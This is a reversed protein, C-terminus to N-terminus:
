NFKPFAPVNKLFIVPGDQYIFKKNPEEENELIGVEDIIRGVNADVLPYTPPYQMNLICCSYTMGLDEIIKVPDEGNGIRMEYEAQHKGLFRKCTCRKRICRIRTAM